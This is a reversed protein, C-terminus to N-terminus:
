IDGQSAWAVIAKEVEDGPLYEQEFRGYRQSLLYQYFGVEEETLAEPPVPQATVPEQVARGAAYQDFLSKNMLLPILGPCYARARALMLLGWTDMDGWYGISKKSLHKSALWQLNLGAGLVALTDPLEPLLHICQENEVVLLRSGPLETEALESTTIKMRKFPLLGTSLPALLVWHDGENLADLFNSLGQESAAGAFREDLLCTLLRSNREIFKTDVSHGALLRLPKGQACGPSLRSALHATRVVEDLSKKLWLARQQVLLPHYSDDVQEVLQELLAYEGAVANDAAAAIWESPTRLCWRVPLRIPEAGARYNVNEWQVEGVTVQQWARVHKQVTGIAEGFVKAGPKGIPLVLPWASSSLLRGTRLSTQYWQRALRQGLDTPSKM